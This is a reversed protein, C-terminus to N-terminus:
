SETRHETDSAPKRGDYAKITVKAPPPTTEDQDATRESWGAQTKLFFIQATTDGNRAKNLLSNAVSFIANSKGKKYRAMAEPQREMIRSFTRPAIMFYDAIQPVTLFSALAELQEIQTDNLVKPPKPNFAQKTM